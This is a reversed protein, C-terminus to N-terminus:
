ATNFKRYLTIFQKDGMSLEYYTVAYHKSWFSQPRWILSKRYEPHSIRPRPLLYSNVASRNQGFCFFGLSKTQRFTVWPFLKRFTMCCIKRYLLVGCYAKLQNWYPYLIWWTCERILGILISSLWSKDNFTRTRPPDINDTKMALLVPPVPSPLSMIIALIM